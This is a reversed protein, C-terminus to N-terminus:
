AAHSRAVPLLWSYTMLTNSPACGSAMVAGIIISADAREPAAVIATNTHRLHATM